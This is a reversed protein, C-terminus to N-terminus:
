FHVLKTNKSFIVNNEHIGTCKIYGLLVSFISCLFRLSINIDQSAVVDVASATVVTNVDSACLANLM